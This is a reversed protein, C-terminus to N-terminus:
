PSRHHDCGVVDREHILVIRAPEHQVIAPQMNVVSSPMASVPGPLNLVSSRPGTSGSGRNSVGSTGDLEIEPRASTDTTAIIVKRADSVVPAATSTLLAAPSHCDSIARSTVM